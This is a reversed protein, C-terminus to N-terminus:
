YYEQRSFGTTLSTQHSVTWPTPLSDFIVTQACVCMLRVRETFLSSWSKEVETEERHFTGIAKNFLLPQKGVPVAEHARHLLGVCSTPWIILRQGPTQSRGSSVCGSFCCFFALM